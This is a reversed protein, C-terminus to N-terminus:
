DAHNHGMPDFHQQRDIPSHGEQDSYPELVEYNYTKTPYFLDIYALVQLSSLFADLHPLDQFRILQLFHSFILAFIFFLHFITYTHFISIYSLDFVWGLM